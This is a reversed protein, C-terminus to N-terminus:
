YSVSVSWSVEDVVGVIGVYTREISYLYSTGTCIQSCLM